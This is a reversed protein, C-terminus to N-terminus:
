YETIVSTPFSDSFSHISTYSFWMAVYRFSVCYKVDVLSWYIIKLFDRHSGSIDEPVNITSNNSVKFGWQWVPILGPPWTNIGQNIAEASNGVSLWNWNDAVHTFWSLYGAWDVKLVVANGASVHSCHASFDHALSPWSLRPLGCFECGHSIVYM